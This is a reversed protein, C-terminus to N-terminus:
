SLVGCLEEACSMELYDGFVYPGSRKPILGSSGSNRRFISGAKDLIMLRIGMVAFATITLESRMVNHRTRKERASGALARTCVDCPREACTTPLLGYQAEISFNVKKIPTQIGKM